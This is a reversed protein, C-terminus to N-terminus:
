PKCSTFEHCDEDAKYMYGTCNAAGLTPKQVLYACSLVAVYYM